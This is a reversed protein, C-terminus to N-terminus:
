ERRIMGKPWRYAGRWLHRCTGTLSILPPWIQLAMTRLLHEAPGTSGRHDSRLMCVCPSVGNYFCCHTARVCTCLPTSNCRRSVSLDHATQAPGYNVACDSSDASVVTFGKVYTPWATSRLSPTQTLTTPRGKTRGMILWTTRYLLRATCTANARTM